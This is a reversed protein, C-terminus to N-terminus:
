LPENDLIEDGANIIAFKEDIEVVDIIEMWTVDVQEESCKLAIVIRANPPLLLLKRRLDNVIM